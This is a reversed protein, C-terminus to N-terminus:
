RYYVYHVIITRETGGHETDKGTLVVGDGSLLEWAQLEEAPCRFLVDGSSFVIFEGDRVNLGGDRGIVEDTGNRNETVYRIHHNAIREAMERRYRPSNPNKSDRHFLKGLFSM